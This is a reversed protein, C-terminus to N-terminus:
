TEWDRDYPIKKGTEVEGLLISQEPIEDAMFINQDAFIIDKFEDERGELLGDKTLSTYMDAEDMGLTRYAKVLGRLRQAHKLKNQQSEKYADYIEDPNTVSYDRIKNTFRSKARRM